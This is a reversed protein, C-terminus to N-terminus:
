FPLGEMIEVLLDAVIMPAPASCALEDKLVRLEYKILFCIEKMPLSGWRSWVRPDDRIAVEGVEGLFGIQMAREGLEDLRTPIDQMDPNPATTVLAFIQCELKHTFAECAKTYISHFNEPHVRSGDM